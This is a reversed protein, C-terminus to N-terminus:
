RELSLYAGGPMLYQIPWVERMQEISGSWSFAAEGADAPALEVDPLVAAVAAALTRAEGRGEVVLHQVGLKERVFRAAIEGDELLELFYPRGVLLANYVHNALVGSVPSTYATDEDLQALEPDDISTAKYRMRTEGLGRPDFSVISDGRALAAEVESWESAQVKGGLGLRLVTRGSSGTARHIYVLPLELRESHHLVFRDIVGRGAEASGRAEWAIEGRVAGGRYPMVPWDRIGPYGQGRYLEVLAPRPRASRDRYYERVIEQLSRGPLDVRVQGTPTCRLRTPDFSTVPDLESKAPRGFARDLFAFASAQNEASYRHEHYGESLAIRDRHGFREYVAAVERFSKRAGEIPVFDKVAASVHLPRPYALLLLGAHDIGRSVLGAPDQEPDSDPDEFIRNAMRMPLSTPFCSPLIASVREDLAGIWTSQLGGGSTGTVAIRAQDVDPRSLLYDVARMGDWAMFRLLSTGALTALNGLIAHEGCVLNYRSRGRAADWFQSREGQGVPDFCLVVYGRKALRGSIEQYNAYAKGLPSHGCAVLVAPKRGAPANPVYLLATVHYGPQSEFVLKDIRYGDAEVSGVIRANLPTREPLGGIMDLLTARLRQQLAVLEAETRVAAFVARRSEDQPWAIDLEHRLLPTIQPGPEVPRELVVFAEPGPREAARVGPALAVGAAM